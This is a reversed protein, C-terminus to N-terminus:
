RAHKPLKVKAPATRKRITELVAKEEPSVEVKSITQKTEEPLQSLMAETASVLRDTLEPTTKFVAINEDLRRKFDKNTSELAETFSTNSLNMQARLSEMEKKQIEYLDHYTGITEQQKKVLKNLEIMERRLENITTSLELQSSRIEIEPSRSYSSELLGSKTGETKGFNTVVRTPLEMSSSKPIVPSPSSLLKAAPLDISAANMSPSFPAANGRLSKIGALLKSNDTVESVYDSPVVGDDADDTDLHSDIDDVDDDQHETSDIVQDATSMTTLPRISHSDSTYLTDLILSRLDSSCVDSSWDGESIEYATKPM